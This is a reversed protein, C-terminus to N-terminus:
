SDPWRSSTVPQHHDARPYLTFSATLSAPDGGAVLGSRGHVTFIHLNGGTTKM